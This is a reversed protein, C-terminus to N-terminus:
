KARVARISFGYYRSNGGMVLPYDNGANLSWAVPYETEYISSCWYKCDTGQADLGRTYHYGAAPFFVFRTEDTKSTVILGAVGTNDYDDTWEADCAELLEDFDAKTPTRWDSGWNVSAADDSSELTRLNDISNYKTMGGDPKDSTDRIGYKYDGENSWDYAEKSQTEGWAFYDGYEEPATAGVNYTAWLTGSPLGLDVYPHESKGVQLPVICTAGQELVLDSSEFRYQKEIGDVVADVIIYYDTITQPPLLCEFEAHYNKLLTVTGSNGQNSWSCRGDADGVTFTGSLAAHSLTITMIQPNTGLAGGFTLKVKLQALAHSFVIDVAGDEGKVRGETYLIDFPLMESNQQDAPVTVEYVGDADYPYSAMYKAEDTANKWLLRGQPTWVGSEYKVEINEVDYQAGSQDLWFGLSGSDIVDGKDYGARTGVGGVTIAVPRDTLYDSGPMVNDEQSCAVLTMAVVAMAIYKKMMMNNKSMESRANKAASPM